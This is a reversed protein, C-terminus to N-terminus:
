ITCPYTQSTTIDEILRKQLRRALMAKMDKQTAKTVDMMEKHVAQIQRHVLLITDQSWFRM